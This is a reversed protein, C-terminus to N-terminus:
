LTRNGKRRQRPRVVCRNLVVVEKAPPAATPATNTASMGLGTSLDLGWLTGTRPSMSEFLSKASTELGGMGGGGFFFPSQSSSSGPTGGGSPSGTAGPPAIVQVLPPRVVPALAGETRPEVKSVRKSKKGTPTTADAKSSGAGTPSKAQALPTPAPPPAPSSSPSVPSPAPLPRSQGTLRELEANLSRITHDQEKVRGRLQANEKVLGVYQAEHHKVRGDKESLSLMLDQNWSRVMELERRNLALEKALLKLCQETRHVRAELKAYSRFVAVAMAVVRPPSVGDPSPSEPATLSQQPYGAISL